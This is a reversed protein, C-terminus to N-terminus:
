ATLLTIKVHYSLVAVNLESGRYKNFQSKYKNILAWVFVSLVISKSLDNCIIAEKRICSTSSDSM